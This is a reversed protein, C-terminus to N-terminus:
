EPVQVRRSDGSRSAPAARRWRLALLFLDNADVTGSTRTRRELELLDDLRAAVIADPPHGAARAQERAQRLKNRLTGFLVALVAEPKLERSGDKDRFGGRLLAEIGELSRPLDGRLLDDALRFPSAGGTWGIRERLDGGGHVLLRDLAADLAHLDNGTAACVYAAEDARLRIGRERARGLLWESLEPARAPAWSPPSDWLKRLSLVVGAGAVAARVLAHDARLADADAVLTGALSRDQLFALAARLLPPDAGEEKKLLPAANRVVVTRAPAFMPPARLDDLLGQLVFDPSHADHRAIEHGTREAAAVIRALAAERFWREEGRLVYIRALPGGAALAASLEAVQARPDPERPPRAAM